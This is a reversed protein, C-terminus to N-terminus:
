DGVTAIALMLMDVAADLDGASIILPASITLSADRPFVPIMGREACRRYVLQAMATGDGDGGFEVAIM